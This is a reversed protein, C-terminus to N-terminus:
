VLVVELATGDAKRVVVESGDEKISRYVFGGYGILRRVAETLTIGEREILLDIDDLMSANIAVNIRKPVAADDSRTRHAPM